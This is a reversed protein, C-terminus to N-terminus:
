TSALAADIRDLIVDANAAHRHMGGHEGTSDRVIGLSTAGQAVVWRESAAMHECADGPSERDGDACFFAWDIGAFPASGLEGRTIAANEPLDDYMRGANSIVAGFWDSGRAHDLAALGYTHTSGRSFGHLVVQGREAHLMRLAREVQPYMERDAYYSSPAEGSGFWWQLSVLRYPHDQLFPRWAAYDQYAWGDHGHLSVLVPCPDSARAAGQCAAPVYELWFSRGDSTPRVRVDDAAAQQVAAANRAKATALLTSASGSTTRVQVTEAPAGPGGPEVVVQSEAESACGSSFLALGACTLVLSIWRNSATPM